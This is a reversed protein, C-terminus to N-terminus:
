HYAVDHAAASRVMFAVIASRIIHLNLNPEIPAEKFCGAWQYVPLFIGNFPGTGQPQELDTLLQRCLICPPPVDLCVNTVDLRRFVAPGCAM